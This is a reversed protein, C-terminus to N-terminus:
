GFWRFFKGAMGSPQPHSAHTVPTSKHSSVPLDDGISVVEFENPRGLSRWVVNFEKTIEDHAKMEGWTPRPIVHWDDYRVLTGPVILNSKFLWTLCDKASLYLDGDVDVLLAPRLHMLHMNPLSENFFGPILTVNPHGIRSLINDMLQRANWVGLADAASFAGKSWHQGETHLGDQEVPLGQFSDFGWMHRFQGITHSINRMSGGTYVGFQYVDLDGRRTRRLRERLEISAPWRFIKTANFKNGYRAEHNSQQWEGHPLDNALRRSTTTRQGHLLHAFGSVALARSMEDYNKVGGRQGDRHETPQYSTAALDSAGLGQDVGLFAFLQRWASAQREHELQESRPEDSGQPVGYLSEYSANFYRVGLEKLKGALVPNSRAARLPVSGSDTHRIM